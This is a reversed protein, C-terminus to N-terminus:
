RVFIEEVVAFFIDDLYTTNTFATSNTTKGTTSSSTLSTSNL